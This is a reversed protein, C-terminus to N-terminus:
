LFARLAVRIRCFKLVTQGGDGEHFHHPLPIVKVINASHLRATLPFFWEVQDVVVTKRPKFYAEDRVDLLNLKRMPYPQPKTGLGIFLLRSLFNVQVGPDVKRQVEKEEVSTTVTCSRSERGRKSEKMRIELIDFNENSETGNIVDDVAAGKDMCCGAFHSPKMCNNCIKDYALRLPKHLRQETM